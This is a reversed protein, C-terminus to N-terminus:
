SREAVYEMTEINFILSLESKEKTFGMDIVLDNLDNQNLLQQVDAAQSSHPEEDSLMTSISASSKSTQPFDISEASSSDNDRESVSPSTPISIREHLYTVPRLASPCDRHVIRSKARKQNTPERWIIPVAFPISKQKGNQM